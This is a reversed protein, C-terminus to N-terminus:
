DFNGYSLVWMMMHDLVMHLDEAIQMDDVDVHISYDAIEKMKGGSYGVIAITTGGNEKAYKMANVVNTSNGSGSIGILIDGDKMKVSLPFRFCESYAEDNSVAMMTPVNDSLCEFNYLPMGKMKNANPAGDSSHGDLNLLGMNVGKNFDGAYHSATAASGGNGCIFIHKGSERADELVNMVKNVDDLNLRQYVEIERTRYGELEKLFDRM